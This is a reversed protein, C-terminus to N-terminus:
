RTKHRAKIDNAVQRAFDSLDSKMATSYWVVVLDRAPSVYLGQGYVGGKYMDGDDWVGDWQWANANPPDSPFYVKKMAEGIEGVGFITKRGSTQIARIYDTSVVRERAARNWSPTYLMGYRALDRLRSAFLGYAQPTSDPAIALLGDGEAGMKSWVLDQFIEHWRRKEVTEALLALMTTNVSSYDFAQGAPRMRAATRMVEFQSEKVGDPNPEGTAALNFRTIFSRPNERNTQTEVVDMGSAMDLVDQVSTGEWATGKLAPMYTDIPLKVDIRGREALIRVVLSTTTKTNSMWVHNDTPRMGPYQELVIRGRHVVIM